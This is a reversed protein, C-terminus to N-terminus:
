DSAVVSAHETVSEQAPLHSPKTSDVVSRAIRERHFTPTGFMTEAFKSRKTISSYTTSGRSVSAATCRFEQTESKVFHTQAIHKAISVARSALPDSETLAWAAYYTASRSSETLLLMNACHHQVAQFSGIARGFQQRTKAYEVTTDLIWQMGGVMEACMAVTATEIAYTLAARTDGSASLADSGATKVNDFTVNYLKRTADMSPMAKIELGAATREIPLLVIGSGTHAVCILLDAIDADPV